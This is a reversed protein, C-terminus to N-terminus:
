VKKYGVFAGAPLPKPKRGRPRSGPNQTKNTIMMAIRQRHSHPFRTKHSKWARHSFHSVQRQNEVNEVARCKWLSV